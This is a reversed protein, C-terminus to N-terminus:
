NSSIHLLVSKLISFRSVKKILTNIQMSVAGILILVFLAFLLTHQGPFLRCSLTPQPCYELKWQMLPRKRCPLVSFM